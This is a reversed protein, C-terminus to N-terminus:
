DRNGGCIIHRFKTSWHKRSDEKRFWLRNTSVEDKSTIKVCFVNSFKWIWLESSM